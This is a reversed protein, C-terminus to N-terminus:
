VAERGRAFGRRKGIEKLAEILEMQERPELDEPKDVAGQSTRQCMEGLDYQPLGDNARDAQCEAFLKHIKRSARNGHKKARDRWYREPQVAGDAAKARFGSQEFFAMVQEFGANDLNKSSMEGGINLLILRYQGDDLRLQKAAIHILALQDRTLAM